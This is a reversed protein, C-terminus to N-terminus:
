SFLTPDLEVLTRLLACPEVAPAWLLRKFQDQDVSQPLVGLKRWVQWDLATMMPLAARARTVRRKLWAYQTSDGSEPKRGIACLVDVSRLGKIEVAWLLVFSATDLSTAGPLRGRWRRRGTRARIESLLRIADRYSTTTLRKEEKLSIQRAPTPRRRKPSRARRPV